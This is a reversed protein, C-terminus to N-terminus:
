NDGDWKSAGKGRGRHSGHVHFFSSYKTFPLNQIAKGRANMAVIRSRCAERQSDDFDIGFKTTMASAVAAVTEFVPMLAFDEYDMVLVKPDEMEFEGVNKRSSVVFLTDDGSERRMEAIDLRHTKIVQVGERFLIGHECFTIPQRPCILGYIANCLL